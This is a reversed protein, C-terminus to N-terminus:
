TRVPSSPGPRACRTTSRCALRRLVCLVTPGEAVLDGDICGVVWVAPGARHQELVGVLDAGRWVSWSEVPDVLGPVATLEDVHVLDESM